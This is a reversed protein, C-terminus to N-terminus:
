YPQSVGKAGRRNMLPAVHVHADVMGGFASIKGNRRDQEAGWKDNDQKLDPFAGEETSERRTPVHVIAGALAHFITLEM